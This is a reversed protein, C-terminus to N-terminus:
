DTQQYNCYMQIYQELTQNVRKSQGDAEPHYGSTFHLRMSLAQVLSKSFRSIFELGRDSMVHSPVSHKSFVYSIFLTTLAASDLTSPTPIFIAQKILRDVVVLIDSCRNSVLLQEIFGISISNWPRLPVLLQKLLGYPKHHHPKNRSCVNCSNV